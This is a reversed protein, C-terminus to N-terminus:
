KAYGNSRWRLFILLNSHFLFFSSFISNLLKMESIWHNLRLCVYFFYLFATKMWKMTWNLWGSWVVRWHLLYFFIRFKKEIFYFRQAKETNSARLRLSWWGCAYEFFFINIWFFSVAIFISWNMKNNAINKRVDNIAIIWLQNWQLFLFFLRCRYQTSSYTLLGENKRLLLFLTSYNQAFYTKMWKWYWETWDCNVKGTKIGSRNRQRRCRPSLQFGKKIREVTTIGCVSWFVKLICNIECKEYYYFRRLFFFIFHFSFYSFLKSYYHHWLIWCLLM